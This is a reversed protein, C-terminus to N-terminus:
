KESSFNLSLSTLYTVTAQSQTGAQHKVELSTENKSLDTVVMAVIGYLELPGLLGSATAPSQMGCSKILTTAM